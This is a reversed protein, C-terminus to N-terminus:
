SAASSIASLAPGSSKVYGYRHGRRVMPGEIYRWSLLAIGLSLATALLTVGLGPLTAITPRERLLVAHLIGDIPVHVIYLCYSIGGLKRLWGLHMVRGLRGGPDLLITLMLTVYFFALWSFGWIATIHNTTGPLFKLLFLCGAFLFILTAYVWRKRLSLFSRIEPSKWALAALIGVAFTDARCPMLTNWYMYSAPTFRFLVERLIPALVVTACLTVTLSVKSLSRILLPAVLYFQEEVALSWTVLFWYWDFTGFPLQTFNQVFLLDFPLHKIGVAAIPLFSPILRTGATRILLYLLIWGYYIPFIRHIRRAYFTRYYNESNKADLLIGGILFGSLVFFLDVGSWGLRFIQKFRYLLSGLEGGPSYAIYHLTFVLLVAVGRLGDLEPIRQARSQTGTETPAGANPSAHTELQLPIIQKRDSALEQDGPFRFNEFCPHIYVM